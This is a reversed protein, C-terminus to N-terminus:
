PRRGGSGSGSTPPIGGRRGLETKMLTSKHTISYCICVADEGDNTACQEPTMVLGDGKEERLANCFASGVTGVTLTEHVGDIHQHCTLAVDMGGTTAKRLVRANPCLMGQGKYGDEKTQMFVLGFREGDRGTQVVAIAANEHEPRDDERREIEFVAAMESLELIDDPEDARVDICSCGAVVVLAVVTLVLTSTTCHNKHNM